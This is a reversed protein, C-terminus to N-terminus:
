ASDALRVRGIGDDATRDFVTYRGAFLPLGLISQKPFHPLQGMLLFLSQGAHLANRAWYHSAPVRLVTDGGTPSELHLHLDPWGRPDIRHNALGQQQAFARQFEAVLGPFRADHRGFGDMVAAHVSAELVLFSSGTDLLANSHRPAVDSPDLPPVPIPDQDGVRVARLNANYYLDHLIRVDQFAGRYLHQQEAGGGLVM